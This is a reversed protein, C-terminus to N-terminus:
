PEEVVRMPVGTQHFRQVANFFKLGFATKAERVDRRWTSESVGMRAAKGAVTGPMAYHITLIDRHEHPMTGMVKFCAAVKAQDIKKTRSTKKDTLWIGDDTVKCEFTLVTVEHEVPQGAARGTVHEGYTSQAIRVQKLEKGNVRVAAGWAILYNDIIELM